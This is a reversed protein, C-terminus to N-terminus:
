LKWVEPVRPDPRYVCYTGTRIARGLHAGLGPHHESIRAMAQRVARTVSARARESASGTRRDRGGLGVARALERILFDREAEAQAAREDDGLARADEVDEEIEALRRRYAEKAQADLFVDGGLGPSLAVGREARRSTAATGGSEGAVLDLVHFERAPEALLRAIYRLGKLDRLRTTHGEFTVCWYDGERRLVNESGVRVGTTAVAQARGTRDNSGAGGRARGAEAADRVAGVREFASRAAELELTARQERGAARHARALGM